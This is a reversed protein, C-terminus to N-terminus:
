AFAWFLIRRLLGGPAIGYRLLLWKRKLPSLVPIMLVEDLVKKREPALTGGHLIRFVVAQKLLITWDSYRGSKVLTVLKARLRQPLALGAGLSNRGHQRYLVLPEDVVAIVGYAAACLALWQDHMHADSPVPRARELLARNCVLACGTVTNFLLMNRFDNHHANIGSHRWFSPNIESLREDVVRLDCHALCPTSDGQEHELTILSKMLVSLKEPLWVDDQDCFAIYKASSADMLASFSGKPGLRANGPLIKFVKPHLREYEHLVVLTDDTSGDDRVVIRFSVDRQAFLSELQPRIFDGANYTALLIDISQEDVISENMDISM